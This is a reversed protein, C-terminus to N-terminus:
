IEILQLLRNPTEDRLQMKSGTLLQYVTSVFLFIIMFFILLRLITGQYPSNRTIKIRIYQIGFLRAEVDTDM